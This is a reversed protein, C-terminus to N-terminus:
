KLFIVKLSNEICMELYTIGCCLTKTLKRKYLDLNKLDVDNVIRNTMNTFDNLCAIYEPDGIARVCDLSLKGLPDPTTSSRIAQESKSFLVFALIFSALFQKM